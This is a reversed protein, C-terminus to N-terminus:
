GNTKVKLDRSGFNITNLLYCFVSFVFLFCRFFSVVRFSLPALDLALALTGSGAGIGSGVATPLYRLWMLVAACLKFM